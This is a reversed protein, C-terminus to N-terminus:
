VYNKLANFTSEALNSSVIGRNYLKDVISPLFYELDNLLVTKFNSKELKNLEEIFEKESEPTREYLMRTCKKLIESNGYYNKVNRKIHERCYIINSDRFVNKIGNTQANLRDCIIIKGFEETINAEKREVEILEKFNKFIILLHIQNKQILLGM